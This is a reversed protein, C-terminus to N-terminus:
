EDIVNHAVASAHINWIVNNENVFDNANWILFYSSDYFM